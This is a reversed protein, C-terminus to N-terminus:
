SEGFFPGVEASDIQRRCGGVPHDPVDGKIDPIFGMAFPNQSFQIGNWVDGDERGRISNKEEM